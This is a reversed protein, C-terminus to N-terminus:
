HSHKTTRAPRVQCAEWAYMNNQHATCGLLSMLDPLRFSEVLVFTGELPIPGGFWVPAATNNRVTMTDDM